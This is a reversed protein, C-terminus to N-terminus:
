KDPLQLSKVVVWDDERVRLPQAFLRGRDDLASEHAEAAGPLLERQPYVTSQRSLVVRGSRAPEGAVTVIIELIGPPPAPLEPTVSAPAPEEVIATPEEIVERRRTAENREVHSEGPVHEEHEVEAVGVGPGAPPPSSTPTRGFPGLLGAGILGVAAVLGATLLGRRTRRELAVLPALAGQWRRQALLPYPLSLDNTM